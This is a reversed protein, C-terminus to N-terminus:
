VPLWVNNRCLFGRQSLRPWQGFRASHIARSIKHISPHGPKRMFPHTETVGASWGRVTRRGGIRHALLNRFERVRTFEPQQLQLLAALGATIPARPFAAAFAKSAELFYLCYGFSEFVSLGNMFFAYICRELKYTLEEDTWGAKWVESANALLARFEESLDAASRYRYRVAQWAWDFHTRRQLPDSMDADSLIAPFFPKAALGFARFEDMPFSPPMSIDM